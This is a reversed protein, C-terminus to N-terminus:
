RIGSPSPMSAWYQMVSFRVIPHLTRRSADTNAKCLPFWSSSVGVTYNKSTQVSNLIGLLQTQIFDVFVLDIPTDDSVSSPSSGIFDPISYYPLPSRLTDDGVEPCSDNTVYGLTLNGASRREIGSARADMDELWGRYRADIYGRRYIEEGREVYERRENAGANNLAPLIQNAISASVNTIYVFSDTFPSATLQDNKTFPGAYVDFRLSSSDTIIVNPISARTNNIALAVPLVDDIFLSL